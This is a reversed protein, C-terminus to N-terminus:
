KVEKDIQDLQIILMKERAHYLADYKQGAFSTDCLQSLENIIAKNSIRSYGKGNYIKHLHVLDIVNMDLDKKEVPKFAVQRKKYDIGILCWDVKTFYQASVNNFTFNNEYITVLGHNANGKTWEFM